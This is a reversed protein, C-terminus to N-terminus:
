SVTRLYKERFITDVRKVITCISKDEQVILEEDRGEILRIITSNQEVEKNLETNKCVAIGDAAFLKSYFVEKDKYRHMFINQIMSSRM